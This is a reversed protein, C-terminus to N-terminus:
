GAQSRCRSHRGPVGERSMLRGVAFASACGSGDRSAGLRDGTLAGGGAMGLGTTSQLPRAASPGAAAAAACGPLRDSTRRAAANQESSARWGARGTPMGTEQHNHPQPTKKSALETACAALPLCFGARWSPSHDGFTSSWRSTEGDASSCLFFFRCFDCCPRGSPAAAFPCLAPGKFGSPARPGNLSCYSPWAFPTAKPSDVRRAAQPRNSEAREHRRCSRERITCRRGAGARQVCIDAPELLKHAGWLLLLVSHLAPRVKVGQEVAVVAHVAEVDTQAAAEVPEFPSDRM